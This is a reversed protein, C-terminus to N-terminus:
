KRSKMVDVCFSGTEVLVGSVLERFYASSLESGLPESVLAQMLVLGERARFM